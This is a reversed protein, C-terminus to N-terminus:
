DGEEVRVVRVLQPCRHYVTAVAEVLAQGVRRCRRDCGETRNCGGMKLPENCEDRPDQSVLHGFGLDAAGEM